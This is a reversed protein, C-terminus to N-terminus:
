FVDGDAVTWDDGSRAMNCSFQSRLLAGFENEADVNGTVEPDATDFFQEGSFKATAPAVLQGSVWAECAKIARHGPSNSVQTVIALVAIAVLLV